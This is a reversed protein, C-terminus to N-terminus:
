VQQRLIGHVHRPQCAANGGATDQFVGVFLNQGIGERTPLLKSEVRLEDFVSWALLLRVVVGVDALFSRVSSTISGDERHRDFGPM